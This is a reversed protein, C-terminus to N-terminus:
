FSSQFTYSFILSVCLFNRDFCVISASIRRNFLESGFIYKLKLGISVMAVMDNLWQQYFYSPDSYMQLCVQEYAYWTVVRHQQMIRNSEVKQDDPDADRVHQLIHVM